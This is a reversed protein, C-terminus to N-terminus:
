QWVNHPTQIDRIDAYTVGASNRMGAPFNSVEDRAQPTLSFVLAAWTREFVDLLRGDEDTQPRGAIMAQEIQGFVRVNCFWGPMDPIIGSDWDTLQVCQAYDPHFEYPAICIGAAVWSDWFVQESPAWVAFQIM